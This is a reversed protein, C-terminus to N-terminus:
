SISKRHILERVAAVIHTGGVHRTLQQCEVMSSSSKARHGRDCDQTVTKLDKVGDGVTLSGVGVLFEEHGKSGVQLRQTRAVNGDQQIMDTGVHPVRIPCRTIIGIHVYKCLFSGKRCIRHRM